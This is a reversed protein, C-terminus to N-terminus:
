QRCSSLSRFLSVHEEAVDYWTRQPAPSFAARAVDPYRQSIETVAGRIAEPTYLDRLVMGSTLQVSLGTERTLLVPLGTARAELAVNPSIETLSPLVLLDHSQFLTQRGEEGQTALFTVRGELSYRQVLSRLSQEMPGSGVLTLTTHPLGTMTRILAPLNKFGVFRGFFLLRLPDHREHLLPTGVPFANEIVSHRPLTRFTGEYLEEQFRTSFVIHDFLRLIRQYWFSFVLFEFSGREYWERLGLTGGRDTYREWFFDGGLRLVKKPRTLRALFLPVGVSVSSFAEIVDADATVNRLERAYRWWRSLPGGSRSVRVVDWDSRNEQEGTGRNEQEGTRRNGEYTVVMVDVGHRKLEEALARIYTAPGGIQPPYIGTALVVKM